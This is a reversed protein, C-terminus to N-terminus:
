FQIKVVETMNYRNSTNACRAGVRIYYTKGAVYNDLTVVIPTGLMDETLTTAAKSIDSESGGTNTGIYPTKSSAFIRYDQTAASAVNRTVTFTVKVSAPAEKVISVNSFSLYPTVTFNVTAVGGSKIDITQTESQIFAGEVATVEYTGAFLKTHNFTGDPKGWLYQNTASESWSIEKYRIRYGNPQETIIPNGTVADIVSGTLTGDPEDYNDIDCSVLLGALSM